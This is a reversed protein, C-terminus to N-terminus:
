PTYARVIYLKEPDLKTEGSGFSATAESIGTSKQVSWYKIGKIKKGEFLWDLFVVAHGHGSHWWMQVFDGPKAELPNSIEKGLNHAVLAHVLTRNTSTVGFWKKRFPEFDGLELDGM